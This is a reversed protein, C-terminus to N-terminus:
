VQYADHVVGSECKSATATTRRTGVVRTHTSHAHGQVAARRIDVIGVSDRRVGVRGIRTHVSPFADVGTCAM